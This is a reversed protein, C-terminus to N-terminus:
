RELNQRAARASEYLQECRAREGVQAWLLLADLAERLQRLQVWMSRTELADLALRHYEDIFDSHAAEADAVNGQANTLALSLQRSRRQKVLLRAYSERLAQRTQFEHEHDQQRRDHAESM